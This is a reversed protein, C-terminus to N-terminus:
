PDIISICYRQKFGEVSWSNSLNWVKGISINVTTSRGVIIRVTVFMLCSEFCRNRERPSPTHQGRSSARAIVVSTRLFWHVMSGNCWQVWSQVRSKHESGIASRGDSLDKAKGISVNVTNEDSM